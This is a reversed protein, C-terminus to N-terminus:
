SVPAPHRTREVLHYGGAGTAAGTVFVVAARVIRAAPALQGAQMVRPSGSMVDSGPSLGGPGSVAFTGVLRLLVRERADSSPDGGAKEEELLVRLNDPVPDLEDM